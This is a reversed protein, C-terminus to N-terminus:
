ETPRLNPVQRVRAEQDMEQKDFGWIWFNWEDSGKPYPCDERLRGLLFAKAGEEEWLRQRLFEIRWDDTM